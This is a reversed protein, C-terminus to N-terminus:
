AEVYKRNRSAAFHIACDHQEFEANIRAIEKSKPPRDHPVHM